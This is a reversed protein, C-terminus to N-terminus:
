RLAEYQDQLKSVVAKVEQARERACILLVDPTDVIL